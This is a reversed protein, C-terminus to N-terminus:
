YKLEFHCNTLRCRNLIVSWNKCEECDYIDEEFTPGIIIDPNDIALDEFDDPDSYLKPDYSAEKAWFQNAQTTIGQYMSRFAGQATWKTPQVAFVTPQSKKYIAYIEM